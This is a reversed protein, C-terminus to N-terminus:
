SCEIIKDDHSIYLEDECEYSDSSFVIYSAITSLWDVDKKNIQGTLLVIHKGIGNLSNNRIFSLASENYTWHSGPNKINIKQMDDVAILRYITIPNSLTQFTWIMQKYCEKADKESKFIREDDNEGNSFLSEGCSKSGIDLFEEWTIRPFKNTSETLLEKFTIM